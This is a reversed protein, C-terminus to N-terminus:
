NFSIRAFNIAAKFFINGSTLAGARLSSRWEVKACRRNDDRERERELEEEEKM